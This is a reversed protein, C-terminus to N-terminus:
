FVVEIWKGRRRQGMIRDRVEKRGLEKERTADLTDKVEDFRRLGLVKLDLWRKDWAVTSVGKRLDYEDDGEGQGTDIYSLDLQRLLPTSSSLKYLFSRPSCWHITTEEDNEVAATPLSFSNGSLSLVRLPLLHSVLNFFQDHLIPVNRVSCLTLTSLHPFVPLLKSGTTTASSPPPPPSRLLISRLTKLSIFSFSLNLSTLALSM